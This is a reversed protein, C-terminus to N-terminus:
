TPTLMAAFDRHGAGPFCLFPVRFLARGCNCGNLASSYAEQPAPFRVTEQEATAVPYKLDWAVQAQPVRAREEEDYELSAQVSIADAASYVRNIISLPRNRVEDYVRGLYEGLVGLCLLLMGGVFLVAAAVGFGISNLPSKSFLSFMALVAVMFYSFCSMVFCLRLPKYSFSTIADMAYKIRSIFSLKGDGALRDHRDYFVVANSYGVWARLGPLYRNSERMNNISDVAKRDLM